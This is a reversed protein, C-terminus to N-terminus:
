RPPTRPKFSLAPKEIGHWSLAAMLFAGILSLVLAPVFDLRNGFAAIVIQQVIFGYIYLGYSFDGWRGAQALLPTRATGLFVALGALALLPAQGGVVPPAWRQLALACMLLVVTALVRRGLWWSRWLALLAGLSFVLGYQIGFPWAPVPQGPAASFRHHLLWGLAAFVLPASWRRRPLGLLGALALGVYCGIELPITWLTGNVTSSPNAEFVGPLAYRVDLVLNLLYQRTLPHQVYDALTLRTLLPGLVGVCLLVAVMLGPWIRLVRRAVFRGLHPDNQWSLTVLYGSIVFFIVVGIAGPENNLWLPVPRGMLAFQHSWIVLLAAVLRVADFNNARQDHGSAPPANM